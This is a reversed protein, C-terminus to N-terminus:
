LAFGNSYVFMSTHAPQKLFTGANNTVELFAFDELLYDKTQTLLVFISTHFQTEGNM